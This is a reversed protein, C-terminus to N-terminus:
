PKPNLYGSALYRKKVNLITNNDPFEETCLLTNFREQVRGRLNYTNAFKAYAIWGDLSRRIEDITIENRKYKLKFKELRKWIRRTSSKKLLRYSNFLRFRLLTIGNDLPIIRTKDPHLEIKLNYKLFSDIDKMLNVLVMRDRHIIVFDDVYRIYYKVRLEYKVYKDLENLYVNAFFQSTLNGLPMGCGATKTRHNDLVTRILRMVRKDSVKWEIIQLLISHDITDFYHKIDAKLVFSNADGEQSVNYRVKRMFKEFRLIASHTGKGKQNAFSDYIFDNSLIPEIINCLAHHVVRDRFHSASIRRTKPDRIIFTTLPAPSYTCTELENKLQKLNNELNSEFEIVYDKLTKRKRAKRWAL